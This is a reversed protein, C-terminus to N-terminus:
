DGNKKRVLVIPAAENENCKEIVGIRLLLKIHEELFQRQLPAFSRPRGTRREPLSEDILEIELPTVKAPPDLGLELRFVDILAHLSDHYMMPLGSAMAQYIM